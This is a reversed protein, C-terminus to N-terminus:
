NISKIVLMGTWNKRQFHTKRFKTKKSRNVDSALQRLQGCVGEKGLPDGADVGHWCTPRSWTSSLWSPRSQLQDQLQVLVQHVGHWCTLRSTKIKGIIIRDINIVFSSFIVMIIVIMLRRPSRLRRTQPREHWRFLSSFQVWTEGLSTNM